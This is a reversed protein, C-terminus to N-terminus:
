RPHMSYSATHKCHLHTSATDCVTHRALTESPQLRWGGRGVVRGKRKWGQRRNMDRLGQEHHVVVM